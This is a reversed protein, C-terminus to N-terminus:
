VFHIMAYVYKQKIDLIISKYFIICGGLLLIFSAFLTLPYDKNTMVQFFVFFAIIMLACMWLILPLYLLFCTQYFKKGRQQTLRFILMADKEFTLMKPYWYAVCFFILFSLVLICFDTVSNVIQPNMSFNMSASQFSSIMSLLSLASSIIAFVAIKLGFILVVQLLILDLISVFRKSM